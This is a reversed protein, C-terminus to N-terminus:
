KLLCSSTTDPSTAYPGYLKGYYNYYYCCHNGAKLVGNPMYTLPLGNGFTLTSIDQLPLPNGASDTVSVVSGDTRFTVIIFADPNNPDLQIRQSTTAAIQPQYCAPGLIAGAYLASGIKFAMSTQASGAPTTALWFSGATNFSYELVYDQYVGWAWGTTWGGVGPASTHWGSPSGTLAVISNDVGNTSTCVPVLLDLSSINKTTNQTASYTFCNAAGNCFGPNNNVPFEGNPGPVIRIDYGGASLCTYAALEATSCTAQANTAACLLVVSVLVMFLFSLHKRRLM